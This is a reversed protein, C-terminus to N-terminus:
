FDNLIHNEDLPDNKPRQWIRVSKFKNTQPDKRKTSLRRWGLSQLVDAVRRAERRGQNRPDLELAQTLIDAAYVEPRISVYAAIKEFWPDPDGFEQIYESIAAIEGSNFEYSVGSRYAHVAAAWISDRQEALRKWPIQFGAGIELPVFRRNGTSDVLFQNRNTTGIMVFRRPLKSPLSAYPYRVEDVRSTVLNKFNEINRSNFYNDIEPLELLWAVHLRYQEKMLTELPTTIESFLGKPVLNRAFMSKGVGQAGVLIPLWSMSEGPQYARAVAGIMMRQMALTALPQPNGLFVNGISDWDEHPKAHAACHDLYKTIPCYSNKLAAYQIAAKIRPEPIFIGNECALKTTMLDLDHGELQVVVGAHNNYEIAGTLKNKRLDTLISKVKAVDDEREKAADDNSKKPRGRKKVDKTDPLPEPEFDMSEGKSHSIIEDFNLLPDTENYGSANSTASFSLHAPLSSTWNPDQKKALSYLKTHGAYRGLGKWKYPRINDPKHGHHGRLVWAVWDDFIVSGVGACAAMVPVYYSEYEGDDSPRLFDRLLWQCRQIDVDNCATPIFEAPEDFDIDALLFDPVIADANLRSVSNTNGYWLREPKQGCNDKLSELSLEALLRNVILWYAGKHQAASDLDLALLFLARFRHEEPTHSASTYTAVCWQQATTTDWFADLTTDGDFDIVILNSGSANDGCRHREYFHTACWGYGAHVWKLLWEIDVFINKWGKAVLQPNQKNQCNKNVAIKLIKSM